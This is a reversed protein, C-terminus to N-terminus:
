QLIWLHLLEITGAVVNVQGIFQETFPVHYLSGDTTEVEFMFSAPAEWVSRVVAVSSKGHVLTLGVLDGYYYQGEEPEKLESRVAYLELGTLERAKEPDSVGHFKIILKAGSGRLGEKQLKRLRPDDSQVIEEPGVLFQTLVSANTGQADYLFLRLEGKLGHPAGIKGLSLIEM